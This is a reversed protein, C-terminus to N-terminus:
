SQKLAVENAKILAEVEDGIELQLANIARTTIVSVVIFEAFQMRVKSLLEGKEVSLVKCPIRNRMSLKGSLEKALSVETEKFVMAIKSGPKIESANGSDIMIASFHHGASEIDILQIAGSQHVQTVTGNLVNM